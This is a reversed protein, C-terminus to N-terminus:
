LSNCDPTHVNACLRCSYPFADHMFCSVDPDVGIPGLANCPLSCFLCVTTNRTPTGFQAGLQPILAELFETGTLYELGLYSRVRAGPDDACQLELPYAVDRFPKMTYNKAVMLSSATEHPANLRPWATEYTTRLALVDALSLHVNQSAMGWPDGITYEAGIHASCADHIARVHVEIFTIWFSRAYYADDGHLFMADASTPGAQACITELTVDNIHCPTGTFAPSLLRLDQSAAFVEDRIYQVTPCHSLNANAGTVLKEIGLIKSQSTFHNMGRTTCRSTMTYTAYKQPFLQAPVQTLYDFMQRSALCIDFHEPYGGYPDSAAIMNVSNAPYSTKLADDTVVNLHGAYTAFTLPVSSNDWYNGALTQYTNSLLSGSGRAGPFAFTSSTLSNLYTSGLTIAGSGILYEFQLVLTFMMIMKMANQCQTTMLDLHQQDSTKSIYDAYNAIACAPFITSIMQKATSCLAFNPPLDTGANPFADPDGSYRPYGSSDVFVEPPQSSPPWVSAVDADPLLPCFCFEGLTEATASCDAGTGNSGCGGTELMAVIRDVKSLLTESDFTPATCVATGGGDGCCASNKYDMRISDCVSGLIYPIHLLMILGTNQMDHLTTKKKATLDPPAITQM